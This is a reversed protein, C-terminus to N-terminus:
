GFVSNSYQIAMWNIVKCRTLELFCRGSAFLNCLKRASKSQKESDDSDAGFSLQNTTMKRSSKLICVSLVFQITEPLKDNLWEAIFIGADHWNRSEGLKKKILM